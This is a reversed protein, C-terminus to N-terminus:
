SVCPPECGQLEWKLSDSTWAKRVEAVVLLVIKHTLTHVYTQACVCALCDHVDCLFLYIRFSSVDMM